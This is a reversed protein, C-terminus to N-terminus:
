GPRDRHSRIVSPSDAATSESAITAFKANVTNTRALFRGADVCAGLTPSRATSKTSGSSFPVGTESAASSEGATAGPTGADFPTSRTNEIYAPQRAHLESYRPM